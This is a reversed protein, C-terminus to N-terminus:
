REGSQVMDAILLCTGHRCVAIFIGTEDYVGWAKRTKADDMNKWRGACPNTDSDQASENNCCLYFCTFAFKNVYERSLYHGSTLVLGTPLDRSTPSHGDEIEDPLHQLIHKLSNNGDMAYLLKFRLEPKGTLKHTCAACAHKLHWDESDRQLVQSVISDVRARIQLYLDFAITFQRSLYRQFTVGQLDCLTKIFAQISFHPSRLRAIRFLELAGFTVAATPHIPSCPVVGQRILASTIFHDTVQMGLTVEETGVLYDGLCHALEM